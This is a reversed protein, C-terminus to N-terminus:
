VERVRPHRSVIFDEWFIGISLTTILGELTATVGFIPIHENEEALMDMLMSVFSLAAGKYEPSTPDVGLAVAANRWEAGMAPADLFDAKEADIHADLWDYIRERIAADAETM